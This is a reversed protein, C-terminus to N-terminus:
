LKTFPSKPLSIIVGPCVEIFEPMERWECDDLFNDELWRKIDDMDRLRLLMPKQKAAWQADPTFTTNTVLVGFNFMQTQMVGLLNRVESSGTKYKPSRHHKVQVAILFPFTPTKPCAIIDIGGDKQYTSRGVPIVEFNMKDLRDCILDEFTAPSITYIFDPDKVLTSIISETINILEVSSRVVSVSEDLNLAQQVITPDPYPGSLWYNRLLEKKEKDIQDVREQGLICIRCLHKVQDTGRMRAFPYPESRFYEEGKLIVRSCKFCVYQYKAKSLRILAM